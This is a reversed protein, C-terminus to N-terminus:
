LCVQCKTNCKSHENIFKMSKLFEMIKATTGGDPWVHRVNLTKTTKGFSYIVTSIIIVQRLAVNQKKTYIICFLQLRQQCNLTFHKSSRYEKPYNSTCSLVRKINQIHWFTQIYLTECLLELRGSVLRSLTTQIEAPQHLSTPDPHHAASQTKKSPPNLVLSWQCGATSRLKGRGFSRHFLPVQVM